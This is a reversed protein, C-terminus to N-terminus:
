GEKMWSRVLRATVQPDSIAAPQPQPQLGVRPPAAVQRSEGIPAAEGPERTGETLAGASAPTRDADELRFLRMVRLALLLSILLAVVAVMSRGGVQMLALPDWAPGAAVPPPLTPELPLSVVSIADGRADVIGVANRVLAEFRTLEENTRPEWLLTGGEGEIRRDGVLVAVSLREIRAGDRTFTEVSRTVDFEANTILSSAGQEPLGPTVESRDERMLVQQDPDLAQVTRGVQDFNLDAAVRVSANGPGMVRSLLEEAKSELYAEVDQRLSLQGSSLGNGGGNGGGAGEPGSLLRGSDDLVRVAESSLGEVGSAVLFAIGEVTGRDPRMGGRLRLVVSAEPAPSDRRFLAREPLTIHVQAGDIGRMTGITRELEGELARRYNVRQTFDTMGWAPQDFLEFGPRGTAPIGERALALRARPLDNERVSIGSGGSLLRYRIGEDDLTQTVQAATELPVGSLVPTWEPALAWRAVAAVVLLAGVGVAIQPTRRPDRARDLIRVVADTM